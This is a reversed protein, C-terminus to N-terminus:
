CLKNKVKIFILEEQNVFYMMLGFNLLSQTVPTVNEKFSGDEWARNVEHTLQKAMKLPNDGTGKYKKVM